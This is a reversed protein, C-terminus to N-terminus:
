RHEQVQEIGNIFRASQWQAPQLRDKYKQGIIRLSLFTAIVSQDAKHTMDELQKQLNYM